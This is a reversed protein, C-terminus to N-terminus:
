VHARGIQLAQARNFRIKPKNDKEYAREYAQIAQDLQQLCQYTVGLNLHYDSQEPDLRCAELHACLAQSWQGLSRQLNGLQYFALAHQRNESLHKKLHQLAEETKKELLCQQYMRYSEM